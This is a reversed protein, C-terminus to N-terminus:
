SDKGISRIINEVRYIAETVRYFRPYTIQYPRIPSTPETDPSAPIDLMDCGYTNSYRIGLHSFLHYSKNEFKKRIDFRRHKWIRGLESNDSKANSEMVLRNEDELKHHWVIKSCIPALVKGSDILRMTFDADPAYNKFREDLWGLSEGVQRRVVGMQAYPIQKYLLVFPEPDNPEMLPVCAMDVEPNKEFVHVVAESWGPLVELDDNLFAVFEGKAYQMLQNFGRVPGVPPNEHIIRVLPDDYHLPTESADGILVEFSHTTHQLVSDLM